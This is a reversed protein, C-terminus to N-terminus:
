SSASETSGVAAASEEENAEADSAVSLKETKATIGNTADDSEDHNVGNTVGNTAAPEAAAV